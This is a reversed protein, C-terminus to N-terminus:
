RQARGNLIANYGEIAHNYEQGILVIDVGANVAKVSMDGFSYNIPLPAM